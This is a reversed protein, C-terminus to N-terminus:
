TARGTQTTSDQIRVTKGCQPCSGDERLRATCVCVWACPRAPNGQVLQHPLVDRTVVAGAAVMAFQGITVGPLIVAGAGLSAGRLVRTASRWNEPREYRHAIEAMRPSRPLKDNTFIVGPGLFVDDEILVGDWVMVQNKVTVRNGLVAGSEIFAGGGINCDEGITAGKMVHAFAWVRTGDGVAAAECIAAPHVYRPQRAQM